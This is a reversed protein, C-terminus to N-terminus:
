FPPEGIDIDQILTNDSSTLYSHCVFVILFTIIFIKTGFSSNPENNEAHKIVLLCVTVTASVVLAFIFANM